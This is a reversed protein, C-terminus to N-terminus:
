SGSPKPVSTSVNDRIGINRLEFRAFIRFMPFPCGRFKGYRESALIPTIRVPVLDFYLGHLEKPEHLKANFLICGRFSLSGQAVGGECCQFFEESVILAVLGSM